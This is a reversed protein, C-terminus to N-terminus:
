RDSALRKAREYRQTEKEIFLKLGNRVLPPLSKMDSMIFLRGRLDAAKQDSETLSSYLKLAKWLERLDVLM